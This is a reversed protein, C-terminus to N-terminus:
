HRLRSTASHRKGIGGQPFLSQILLLLSEKLTLYSFTCIKLDLVVHGSGIRGVPKRQKPSGVRGPRVRGASPGSGHDVRHGRIRASSVAIIVDVVVSCVNLAFHEVTERPVRYILMHVYMLARRSFRHQAHDADNPVKNMTRADNLREM